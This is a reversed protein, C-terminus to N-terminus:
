EQDQILHIRPDSVKQIKEFSGDFSGDEIIILELNRYSQNLISTISDTIYKETNYVPMIVSVM